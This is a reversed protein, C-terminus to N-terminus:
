ARPPEFSGSTFGEPISSTYSIIKTSIEPHIIDFDFSSAISIQMQCCQCQCFPSCLDYHTEDRHNDDLAIIHELSADNDTVGDACPVMNLGFLYLALIIIQFKM